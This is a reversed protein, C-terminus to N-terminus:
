VNKNYDCFDNIAKVQKTTTAEACNSEKLERNALLLWAPPKLLIWIGKVAADLFPSVPNPIGVSVLMMGITKSGVEWFDAKFMAVVVRSKKDFISLFIGEETLPSMRFTFPITASTHLLLVDSPVFAVQSEMLLIVCWIECPKSLGSKNKSLSFNINVWKNVNMSFIVELRVTKNCCILCMKGATTGSNVVTNLAALVRPLVRPQGIIREKWLMNCKM